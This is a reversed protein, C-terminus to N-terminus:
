SQRRSGTPSRFENTGLLTVDQGTSAPTHLAARIQEVAAEAATRHWWAARGLMTHGAGEVATYSTTAGRREASETWATSARPDTMRDATGHLVDVRRGAVRGVVDGSEVWPALGVVGVVGPADALALATRGGMSHGLLVVPADGFQERLVELAWSADVVPDRRRGNWGRVRYRLRAVAVRLGTEGAVRTVAPGFPLMRAVALQTPSTAATSRARGGHLVLVVGDVGGEPANVTMAARHGDIEPGRFISVGPM